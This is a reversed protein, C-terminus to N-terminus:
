SIFCGTVKLDEKIEPTIETVPMNFWGSGASKEEEEKKLKKKLRRSITRPQISENDLYEGDKFVCKSEYVSKVRNGISSRNLLNFADLPNSPLYGTVERGPDLSTSLRVSSRQSQQAESDGSSGKTDIVFAM